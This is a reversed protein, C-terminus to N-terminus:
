AAREAPAGARRAIAIIREVTATWSHRREARDRAARGLRLRRAPDRALAALADALAAPDGPPCILGSSDPEVFTALDGVDTAVIPLGAAMYEFLKLPSFYFSPSPPYPAVAIDMRALEGPVAAEPVAGTWEISGAIGQAGARAELREREPGKGVVLLRVDLGQRLLLGMADILGDVGHWPRLSGLFGICVPEGPPRLACRPSFRAPDVANPVVHVRGTAEAFGALHRAVGPSVALLAAAAAFSRRRQREAAARDILTRYRATEELLPANVELLGPVGWDRAQEMGAASWLSQREYVLDFPGAADLQRRLQDNAAIALREREAQALQRSAHPLAHVRVQELDAPRPGDFRAAFLELSVGRGLFARLVARVHASSGNTGFVPVGQDASVYAIRIM